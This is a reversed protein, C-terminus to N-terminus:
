YTMHLLGVLGVVLAVPVSALAAVVAGVGVHRTTPSFCLIVGNAFVLAMAILVATTSGATFPTASNISTDRDNHTSISVSVIMLVALDVFLLVAVPATQRLSPASAVDM